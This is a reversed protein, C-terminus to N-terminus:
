PGITTNDATADQMACQYLTLAGQENNKHYRFIALPELRHTRKFTDCADRYKENLCMVDDFFLTRHDRPLIVGYRDRERLYEKLDVTTLSTTAALIEPAAVIIVDSPKTYASLTRLALLEAERLPDRKGPAEFLASAGVFVMVFVAGAVSLIPQKWLRGLRWGAASVLLCLVPYLWLFYRGNMYIEATKHPLSGSFWRGAYVAYILFYTVLWLSLFATKRPFSRATWFLGAIWLLSFLAPHWPNFFLQHLGIGMNAAVNSVHTGLINSSAAALPRPM